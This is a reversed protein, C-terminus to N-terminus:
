DLAGLSAAFVAAAGAPACTAAGGTAAAGAGGSGGGAVAAGGGAPARGPRRSTITASDCHGPCMASTTPLPPSRVLRSRRGRGLPQVQLITNM